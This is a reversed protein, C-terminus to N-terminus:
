EASCMTCNDSPRRCSHCVGLWVPCETASLMYLISTLQADSAPMLFKTDPLLKSDPVNLFAHGAGEYIYLEPSGGAGKVKAAFEEASQVQMRMAAQSLSM